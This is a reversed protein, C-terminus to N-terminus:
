VREIHERGFLGHPRIMLIIILVVFPVAADLGGGYGADNLWPNIYGGTLNQVLGIIFGGIIAGTLSELGGLIVAPFVILGVTALTLDVGQRAGWMIGGVSAVLLAIAWTIAFIRRVSIGMSLAAQQDDAVAQMAIGTRTYKFFATLAVIFVVAFGFSYLDLKAVPTSFITVTETSFPEIPGISLQPIARTTPGWVVAVLGRVVAALGITAMVVSILPKGILPRLIGRELVFGLMAGVILTLPFAVALPLGYNLVMAVAMYGGLMVAEGQAFNVVQSAKYILVFGIAVLAYLSGIVMGIIVLQRFKVELVFFALEM